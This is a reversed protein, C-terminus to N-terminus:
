LKCSERISKNKELRDLYIIHSNYKINYKILFKNDQFIYKMKLVISEKKKKYFYNNYYSNIM